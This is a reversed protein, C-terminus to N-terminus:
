LRGLESVVHVTERLESPLTLVTSLLANAGFHALVRGRIDRRDDLLRGDLLTLRLESSCGCRKVRILAEDGKQVLTSGHEGWEVRDQTPWCVQMADWNKTRPAESISYKTRSKHGM